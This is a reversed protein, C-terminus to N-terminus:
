LMFCISLGVKNKVRQARPNVKTTLIQRRITIDLTSGQVSSLINIIAM